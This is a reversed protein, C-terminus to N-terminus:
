DNKERRMGANMCSKVSKEMQFCWSRQETSTATAARTAQQEDDTAWPRALRGVDGRSCAACISRRRGVRWGACGASCCRWAVRRRGDTRGLRAPCGAWEDLEGLAACRLASEPWKIRSCSRAGGWAAGDSRLPSAVSAAQRSLSLPPDSRPATLRMAWTRM